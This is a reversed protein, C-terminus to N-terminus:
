RDNEELLETWARATYEPLRSAPVAAPWVEGGLEGARGHLWCGVISSRVGDLGQAALGGILGTLVDGSGGTGLHHDGTPNVWVQGDPDAIVTRYGKAVVVAGSIRAAERAAGLRDCLIEETTRGLLRGLEGPHPTLVTTGERGAPRDLRGALLNLADADLVLPGDWERLVTELVEDAGRGTGMGPGIGLATMRGFVKTVDGPGDIEGSGLAPLRFTMAELCAGDVVPVLPDPVAVTVLGVGAVVAARASMSVSGGGGPGGGIILLHGFVGKHGSVPRVPLLMAVDEAEVWWATAGAELTRPAIGIDVVVVEGCYECAPPLCHCPKLAGFTACLDAHVAPGAVVSSSGNLGTPVDVAVVAASCANIMEIVRALRGAPPRDLGTGLLADVIIEPPESGFLLDEIM